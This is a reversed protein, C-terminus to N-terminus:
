FAPKKKTLLVFFGPFYKGESLRQKGIEFYEKEIEYLENQSNFPKFKNISTSKLEMDESHLIPILEELTHQTEHPHLVQDYFWSLVHTSDGTKAQLKKYEQYLVEESAGNLKLKSFHDLFAKRGYKHYLGLFLYGDSRVCHRCLHRLGEICNNTHHLVGLSTVLDFLYVPRYEFLDAEVFEFSINLISAVERAQELAVPNYDIGIASTGYYYNLTNVFWGTGCGVDLVKLQKKLLPILIPYHEIGNTRRIIDAANKASSYYNFPLNKYFELVDPNAYTESM